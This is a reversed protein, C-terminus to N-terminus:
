LSYRKRLNQVSTEFHDYDSFEFKVENKKTLNKILKSM